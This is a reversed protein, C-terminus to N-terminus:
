VWTILKQAPEKSQGGMEKGASWKRRWFSEEERGFCIWAILQQPNASKSAQRMLLKVIAISAKVGAQDYVRGTIGLWKLNPVETLLQLLTRINESVAQSYKGPSWRYPFDIIFWLGMHHLAHTYPASPQFTRDLTVFIGPGVRNVMFTLYEQAITSNVRLLPMAPGFFNFPRLLTLRPLPLHCDSGGLCHQWIMERLEAPIAELNGRSPAPPEFITVVNTTDDVIFRARDLPM